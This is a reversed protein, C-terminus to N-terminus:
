RYDLNRKSDITFKLFTYMRSHLGDLLLCVSVADVSPITHMKEAEAVEWAKRILTKALRSRRMRDASRDLEILPHESFKAGWSLVTALVAPNVPSEGFPSTQRQHPHLQTHHLTQPTLPPASASSQPLSVHPSRPSHQSSPVPPLSALLQARFRAPTLLAFRTHCIEFYVEVLDLAFRSPLPTPVLSDFLFNKRLRLLIAFFSLNKSHAM